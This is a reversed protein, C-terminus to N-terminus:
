RGSNKRDGCSILPLYGNSIDDVEKAETEYGRNVNVDGHTHYMRFNM